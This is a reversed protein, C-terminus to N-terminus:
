VSVSLVFISQAMLLEVPDHARRICVDTKQTSSHAVNTTMSIPVGGLGSCGHQNNEVLVHAELIDVPLSLTHFFLAQVQPLSIQSSGLRVVQRQFAKLLNGDVTLMLVRMPCHAM